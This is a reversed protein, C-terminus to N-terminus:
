KTEKTRVFYLHGQQIAQQLTGYRSCIDKKILQYNRLKVGCATLAAEKETPMGKYKEEIELITQIKLDQTKSKAGASRTMKDRIKEEKGRLRYAIEGSISDTQTMSIGNRRLIEKLLKIDQTQKGNNKSYQIRLKLDM